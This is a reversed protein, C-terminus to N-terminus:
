ENISGTSITLRLADDTEVISIVGSKEITDTAFRLTEVDPGSGLDGEEVTFGAAPLAEMYFGKVEDVSTGELAYSAKSYRQDDPNDVEFLTAGDPLPIDFGFIEETTEAMPLPPEADGPDEGVMEEATDMAVEDGGPGPTGLEDPSQAAPEYIANTAEVAPAGANPTPPIGVVGETPEDGGCASLTFLILLCFSAPTPPRRHM